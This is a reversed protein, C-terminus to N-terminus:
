ASLGTLGSFVAALTKRRTPRSRWFSCASFITSSVSPTGCKNEHGGSRLGFRWCPLSQPLDRPLWGCKNNRKPTRHRTVAKPGGGFRHCPVASWLSSAFAALPGSPKQTRHLVGHDDLFPRRAVPGVNGVQGATHGHGPRHPF